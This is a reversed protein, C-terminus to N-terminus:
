RSASSSGSSVLVILTQFINLFATAASLVMGAALWLYAKVLLEVPMVQVPAIWGSVRM